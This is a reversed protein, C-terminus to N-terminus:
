VTKEARKVLENLQINALASSFAKEAQALAPLVVNGVLGSGESQSADDDDARGAARLIENATINDTDRGLEYGGRPGRVGRLIGEHVLAQLVPELHRPPLGHRSALAKASVPRSQSNLAVDIVAAIALIGKRSM